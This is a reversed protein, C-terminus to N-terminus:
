ILWGLIKIISRYMFPSLENIDWGRNYNLVMDKGKYIALKSVRPLDELGFRSGNEYVKAFVKFNFIRFVRWM